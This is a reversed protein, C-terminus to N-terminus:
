NKQPRARRLEDVEAKLRDLQDELAKLRARLEPGEAGPSDGRLITEVVQAVVALQDKTGQVLLLGSEPHIKILPKEDPKQGLIGLAIDVAQLIAELRRKGELSEAPAGRPGLSTLNFVQLEKKEPDKEAGFVVYVKRAGPRQQIRSVSVNRRGERAMFNILEVASQLPVGKLSFPPLPINETGPTLVVNSEASMASLAKVYSELSGGPFDITITGNGEDDAPLAQQARAEGHFWGPFSLTFIVWMTPRM